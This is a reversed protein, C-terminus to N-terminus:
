LPIYFKDTDESVTCTGGTGHTKSSHPCRTGLEARGEAALQSHRVVPKVPVTAAPVQTVADGTLALSTLTLICHLILTSAHASRSLCLSCDSGGTLYRSPESPFM